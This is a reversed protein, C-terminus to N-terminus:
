KTADDNERSGRVRGTSTYFLWPKVRPQTIEGKCPLSRSVNRARDRGTMDPVKIGLM